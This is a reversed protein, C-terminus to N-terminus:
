DHSTYQRIQFFVAPFLTGLREPTIGKAAAYLALCATILPLPAVVTAPLQNIGVGM